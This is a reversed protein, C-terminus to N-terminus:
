SGSHNKTSAIYAAMRIAETRNGPCLADLRALTEDDLRVNIRRTMPKDFLPKRGSGERHGGRPKTVNSAM